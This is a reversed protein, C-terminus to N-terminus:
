SRPKLAHVLFVQCDFPSGGAEKQAWWEKAQETVDELLLSREEETVITTLINGAM